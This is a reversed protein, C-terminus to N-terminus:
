LPAIHFPSFQEGRGEFTDGDADNEAPGSGLLVVEIRNPQHRVRVFHNKLIGEHAHNSSDRSPSPLYLVPVRVIYHHKESIKVHLDLCERIIPPSGV